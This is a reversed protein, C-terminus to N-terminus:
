DLIGSTVEILYGVLLFVLFLYILFYYSFGLFGMFYFLGVAWPYLLVLELDFILFAVAILFFRVDVTTRLEGFPEVGCEYVSLKVLSYDRRSISYSFALLGVSIIGSFLFFFIMSMHDLILFSFM